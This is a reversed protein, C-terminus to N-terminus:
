RLFTLFPKTTEEVSNVLQHLTPILPEGQVVEGEGFAIGFTFQVDEDRHSSRAADMVRYIEAGDNLPWQKDAPNLAIPLSPIESPDVGMQSAFFDRNAALPNM